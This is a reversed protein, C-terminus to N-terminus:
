SGGRPRRGNSHKGAVTTPSVPTCCILLCPDAGTTRNACGAPFAM